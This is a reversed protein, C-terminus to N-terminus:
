RLQQAAMLGSELAHRQELLEPAHQQM